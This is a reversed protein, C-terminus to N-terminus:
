WIAVGEPEWGGTAFPSGSVPTLAGIASIAFVFVQGGSSNTGAVYAFKGTPDFAVGGTEGLEFTPRKTKKLFGTRPGIAYARVGPDEGTVCAFTGAPNIALWATEYATKFPKKLLTLGGTGGNIAYGVVDSSEFNSEYVFRHVPDIAVSDPYLGAVFPSGQVPTLAGSRSITYASVNASLDNAVYAFKGNSDIAISLPRAGAAFPSGNIPALAGTNANIAYVSVSGNCSNCDEADTVYVFRGAPDIAVGWPEVGAAFPSGPVPTLVGDAARIAFASVDNSGVNAAYV